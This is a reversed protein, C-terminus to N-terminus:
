LYGKLIKLESLAEQYAKDSLHDLIKEMKETMNKLKKESEPNLIRNSKPLLRNYHQYLKHGSNKAHWGYKTAISDANETTIEWKEYIYILAVDTQKLDSQVLKVEPDQNVDKLFELFRKAVSLSEWDLKDFSSHEEHLAILREIHSVLQEKFLDFNKETEDIKEGPFERSFIFRFDEEDKALRKENTLILDERKVVNFREGKENTYYLDDGDEHRVPEPNTKYFSEIFGEGKENFYMEGYNKDPAPVKLFNSLAFVTREKQEFLEKFDM